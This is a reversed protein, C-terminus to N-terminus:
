EKTQIAKLSMQARNRVMVNPDTKSLDYLVETVPVTPFHRLAAAAAARARNTTAVGQGTAAATFLSELEPARASCLAGILGDAESYLSGEPVPDEGAGNLRKFIAEIDSAEGRRALSLASACVLPDSIPMQQDNLVQRAGDM